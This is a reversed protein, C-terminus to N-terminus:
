HARTARALDRLLWAEYAEQIDETFEPGGLVSDRPVQLRVASQLSDITRIWSPLLLLRRMGAPTVADVVVYEIAWTTESILFGQVRGIEGDDATVRYGRVEEVRPLEDPALWERRPEFRRLGAAHPTMGAAAELAGAVIEVGLAMEGADATAPHVIFYRIMWREEDFCLDSLRGVEGDQANVKLGILQHCDWM